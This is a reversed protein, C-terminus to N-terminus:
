RYVGRGWLGLWPIYRYVYVTYHIYIRAKGSFLVKYAAGEKGKVALVLFHGGGLGAFNLLFDNPFLPRPPPANSLDPELAHLTITPSMQSVQSM